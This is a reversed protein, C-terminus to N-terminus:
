VRMDAEGLSRASLERLGMWEGDVLRQMEQVVVEGPALSVGSGSGSGSNNGSRSDTSEAGSLDHLWGLAARYEPKEVYEAVGRVLEQVGFVSEEGGASEGSGAGAPLPVPIFVEGHGATQHLEYAGLSWVSAVERGFVRLPDTDDATTTVKATAAPAASTCASSPTSFTAFLNGHTRPSALYVTRRYHMAGLYFTHIYPLGWPPLDPAM